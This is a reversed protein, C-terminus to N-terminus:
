LGIQKNFIARPPVKSADQAQTNTVMSRQVM